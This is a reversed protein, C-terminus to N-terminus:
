RGASWRTATASPARRVTSRAASRRRSRRGRQEASDDESNNGNNGNAPRGTDEASVGQDSLALSLKGETTKPLLGMFTRLVHAASVDEKVRAGTAEDGSLMLESDSLLVAGVENADPSLFVRRAYALAAPAQEWGADAFEKIETTVSERLDKGKL